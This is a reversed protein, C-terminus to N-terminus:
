RVYLKVSFSSQRDNLCMINYPWSNTNSNESKLSLLNRHFCSMGCCHLENAPTMVSHVLIYTCIQKMKKQPTSHLHELCFGRCEHVSSPVAPLSQFYIKACSSLLSPSHLVTHTIYLTSLVLCVKLPVYSMNIYQAPGWVAWNWLLAGM